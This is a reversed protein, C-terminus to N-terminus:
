SLMVRWIGECNRAATRWTIWPSYPHVKVKICFRYNSSTLCSCQLRPRLHASICGRQQLAASVKAHTQFSDLCKNVKKGKTSPNSTIRNTQRVILNCFSLAPSAKGEEPNLWRLPRWPLSLNDGLCTNRLGTSLSEWFNWTKAGEWSVPQCNVHVTQPDGLVPTPFVTRCVDSNFM